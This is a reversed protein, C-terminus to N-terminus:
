KLSNIRIDRFHIEAGESQLCIKGPIVECDWAHNLVQGNVMLTVDGGDVIIEYRNWEGVPNENAFRHKTNRGRTREPATNMPVDGINWFDGARGSMLQAEISRPWVKDEGTMRFLVGSNGAKRTVPDFRWQLKLIFSEYDDETRLYGIPNGKCILIGDEVRWVDAMKGGDELHFTWGELNEGNFLAIPAQYRARDEAPIERIKVNRYWVNNGHDQLAIHGKSMTGFKPMKGFKSAQVRQNWEDDHMTAELVKVGNLWHEVHNGCVVVRAENFEGVPKLM